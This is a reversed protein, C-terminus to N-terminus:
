VGTTQYSDNCYPQLNLLAKKNYTKSVFYSLPLALPMITAVYVFLADLKTLQRTGPSYNAYKSYITYNALLFFSPVIALNYALLETHLLSNIILLPVNTYLLFKQLFKRKTDMFDQISKGEANLMLLPENDQYFSCIISNFIFLAALLFFKVPSLLLVLMAIPLLLLSNKRIGSRFEFHQAPIWDTLIRLRFNKSAKSTFAILAAVIQLLLANVFQDISLLAISAPVVLLSYNKAIRLSAQGFYHRVFQLDRRNLHYSFLVVAIIGVIGLGYDPRSDAVTRIGFFALLLLLVFWIGLDRKLQYYRLKLLQM